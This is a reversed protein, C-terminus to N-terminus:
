PLEFQKVLSPQQWPGVVFSKKDELHETDFLLVRKGDVGVAAWKGDASVAGSNYFRGFETGRVMWVTRSTEGDRESLWVSGADYCVFRKEGQRRCTPSTEADPLDMKTAAMLERFDRLQKENVDGKTPDDIWGVLQGDELSYLCYDWWDGAAPCAGDTLVYRDDTSLFMRKQQINSISTITPGIRKSEPGVTWQTIGVKPQWVVMRQSSKDFEFAMSVDDLLLGTELTSTNWVRLTGESQLTIGTGMFGPNGFYGALWEGDPSVEVFLLSRGKESEALTRVTELEPYKLITVSRGREAVFIWPHGPVFAVYPDDISNMLKRRKPEAGDASPLALLGLATIALVLRAHFM